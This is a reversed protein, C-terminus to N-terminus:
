LCGILTILRKNCVNHLLLVCKEQRSRMFEQLLNYSNRRKKGFFKKNNEKVEWTYIYLDKYIYM